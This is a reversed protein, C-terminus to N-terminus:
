QHWQYLFFILVPELLVDSRQHLFILCIILTASPDYVLKLMAFNTYGIGEKSTLEPKPTICVSPHLLLKGRYFM